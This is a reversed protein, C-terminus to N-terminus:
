SEGILRKALLVERVNPVLGPVTSLSQVVVRRQVQLIELLNQFRVESFRTRPNLICLPIQEPREDTARDVLTNDISDSDFNPVAVKRKREKEQKVMEDPTAYTRLEM